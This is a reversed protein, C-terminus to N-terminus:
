PERLRLTPIHLAALASRLTRHESSRTPGYPYALWLDHARDHYLVGSAFTAMEHWDRRPAHGWHADRWVLAALVAVLLLAFVTALLTM